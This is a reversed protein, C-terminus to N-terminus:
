LVTVVGRGGDVRIQQGTQIRRMLDPIGAVAPLGFERAVIAGHSLTGGSEMVLGAASVFLPVWAPDTSPCVLIYGPEPPTTLPETLALAPGEVVGSSLALGTLQFAGEVIPLPRGIAELDDGFIVAPLDLTLEVQRIRKREAILAIMDAGNVLDTLEDLTLFFIGGRLNFRRDLEMLRRRIEFYGLMLYHKGTERLGIYTRVQEAHHALTKALYSNWKAEAAIERWVEEPKVEPVHTGPGSLLQNLSDPDESWRAASLEMENAGRHGFQKLFDERSRKGQSVERMASPFDAEPDPKVGQSLRNMMEVSRESGFSKIFQQELFKWSYDTYLTPKLSEAAFDVLTRTILERLSALLHKSECDGIEEAAIPALYAQYAPIIKSRLEEAFTKSGSAVKAAIKLMGFIRLWKGLGGHMRTTDPQPNLAHHPFEKYKELPYKFVPKAYQLRPERALNLYPRGGILDYASTSELAPDPQYGVDRFMKGTGGGGSLLFGGVISWTMPTPTKLIEKLNTHSWVTGRPEVLKKLRAITEVRAKEREVASVTTIPRAQLLWCAGGTIAWEIDRPEGYFAEVRRALDALDRVQSENLCIARSLEASVHSEGHRDIRVQKIGAAQEAIAGTERNVQFRDPTVRGSVVAEGLGWSAEIRLHKGTADWPDVTFMVGAVEADVLRQVVVAMALTAEDVGQRIRYAKARETHLSAWCKEIAGRLASEGDVGLITEQQGAFSAEAGDEATASSRVAVVGEGLRRYAAAIKMWLDDNIRQHTQGNQRYADATVCFGPPVPLGSQSTRGLSFGKGGVNEADAPSIDAFFIVDQM